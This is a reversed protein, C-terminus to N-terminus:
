RATDKGDGTSLVAANPGLRLAPGDLSVDGSSYLVRPTSPLSVHARDSGVNAIVLLPGRQYAVIDSGLELWQVEDPLGDRVGRYATLLERYGCLMSTADGRQVAVTDAPTRGGMALWPTGTTFGLAPADPTWPMPTRAVDRSFAVDREHVGLPEVLEDPRLEGDSLGLEEGQYVFAPGPLGVQLVAMALQRARGVTGGGYRSAVRRRDHSGQVWAVSGAPLSVGEQLVTRLADADWGVHLPGFWFAAHLGDGTVYRRLREPRLLYVEGLLLAEYREAISRWRRYVSVNREQDTDYVRFGDVGRDLWFGLVRDFEEAVAPNDWNLDPQEPLFLHLWYQGTAEDLTWARGGFVSRWNNPPGGDPAPDRWIYYDRRPNDRSSRSEVFWPHDSSSHNPVIDIIVRMGLGHARALVADFDELTGFSPDVDCYDAVDYGHDRMPSPFFPTIWVVDVGLEALHDLRENLGPLDGIGDGDSDAYSRLYVEYGVADAWWSEV